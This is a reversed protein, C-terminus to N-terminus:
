ARGGGLRAWHSLAGDRRRRLVVGTGFIGTLLIAWTAPEPVSATVVGENFSASRGAPNVEYLFDLGDAHFINYTSGSIGRFLVGYETFYPGSPIFVDDFIFPTGAFDYPDPQNSNPVIGSVVDAGVNGAVSLIDRTGLANSIDSVDIVLHAGATGFSPSRIEFPDTVTFDVRWIAASAASAWSLGLVAAVGAFIKIM